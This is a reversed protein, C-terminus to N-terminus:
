MIINEEDDDDTNLLDDLEDAFTTTPRKPIQTNSPRFYTNWVYSKVQTFIASSKDKKPQTQLYEKLKEKDEKPLTKLFEELFQRTIDNFKNIKKM